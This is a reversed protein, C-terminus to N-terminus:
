PMKVAAHAVTMAHVRFPVPDAIRPRRGGRQGARQGAERHTRAEVEDVDRHDVQEGHDDIASRKERPGAIM